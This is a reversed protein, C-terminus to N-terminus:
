VLGRATRLCRRIKMRAADYNLKFVEAIEAINFGLVYHNWLVDLCEPKAESLLNIAYELDLRDQPSMPQSKSSQDILKTLEEEPWVEMRKRHSHSDAAKRLAIVYCWKLFQRDTKERFSRIGTVIAKWTEQLVDNVDSENVRRLIYLHLEIRIANHLSELAMRRLGESKSVRCQEVLRILYSKM